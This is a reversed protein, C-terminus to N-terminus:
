AQTTWFSVNGEMDKTKQIEMKKKKSFTVSLWGLSALGQSGDNCQYSVHQAEGQSSLLMSLLQFCGTCYNQIDWSQAMIAKLSEFMVWTHFCQDCLTAEIHCKYLSFDPDEWRLATCCLCSRAGRVKTKKNSSSFYSWPHNLCHLSPLFQEEYVMWTNIIQCNWLHYVLSEM